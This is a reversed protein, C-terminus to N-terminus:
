VCGGSVLVRPDTNQICTVLPPLRHSCVRDGAGLTGTRIQPKVVQNADDEEESSDMDVIEGAKKKELKKKHRARKEKLANIKIQREAM